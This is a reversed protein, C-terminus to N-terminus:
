GPLWSDALAERLEQLDARIVDVDLGLGAFLDSRDPPAFRQGGISSHEDGANLLGAFRGRGRVRSCCDQWWIGELIIWM